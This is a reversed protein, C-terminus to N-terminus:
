DELTLSGDKNERITRSRAKPQLKLDALKKVLDTFLRQWERDREKLGSIEKTLATIRQDIGTTDPPEPVKIENVVKAPQVENTVTVPRSLASTELANVLKELRRMDRNRGAEDDRLKHLTDTLKALRSELSDILAALSAYRNDSQKAIEGFGKEVHQAMASEPDLRITLLNKRLASLEEGIIKFWEAARRDLEEGLSKMTREDRADLDAPTVEETLRGGGFPVRLQVM